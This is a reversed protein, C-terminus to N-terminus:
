RHGDVVALLDRVVDVQRAVALQLARELAPLGVEEVPPLGHTGGHRGLVHVQAGRDGDAALPPRVEAVHCHVLVAPPHEEGLAVGVPADREPLLLALGDPLLHGALVAGVQLPQDHDLAVGLRRGDLLLAAEALGRGRQVVQAVEELDVHLLAAVEPRHHVQQVGVEAAVPALLGLRQQV